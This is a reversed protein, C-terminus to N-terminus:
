WQCAPLSVREKGRRVSAMGGDGGGGGGTEFTVCGEAGTFSRRVTRIQNEICRETTTRNYTALVWFGARGEAKTVSNILSQHGAGLILLKNRPLSRDPQGLEFTAVSPGIIKATYRHLSSM